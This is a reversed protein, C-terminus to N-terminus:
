LTFKAIIALRYLYFLPYSALFHERINTKCEGETHLWIVGRGLEGGYRVM